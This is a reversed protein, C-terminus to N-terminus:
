KLHMLVFAADLMNVKDDQPQYQQDLDSLFRHLLDLFEQMTFSVSSSASPFPSASVSASPLSSAFSTPIPPTPSPSSAPPSTDILFLANATTEHIPGAGVVAIQAEYYQGGSVNANPLLQVGITASEHPSLTVTSQSITLSSVNPSVQPSLTFTTSLCDYDDNNTLTLTYERMTTALHSTHPPNVSIEPIVRCSTKPIFEVQVTAGATTHSVQSIKIGHFRDFYTKGDEIAGYSIDRIDSLANLLYTPQKFNNGEVIHVQVGDFYNTSGLRIFPVNGVYGIPRVDFGYPQRYGILYHYNTNPIPIILLKYDDESMFELPTVTYTGNQTVTAIQTSPIWNLVAKRAAHFHLLSSSNGMTDTIDGYERIICPNFGIPGVLYPVATSLIGKCDLNKAHVLGFIHGVEHIATGSHSTEPNWAVYTRFIGDPDRGAWGAIGNCDTAPVYYLRLMNPTLNIGQSQAYTDVAPGIAASNCYGTGGTHDLTYYGHIDGNFTLAGFSNEEYFNKLSYQGGFVMEDVEATTLPEIPNDSFNYLLVAVQQEGTTPFEIFGSADLQAQIEANGSLSLVENDLAVGSIDADLAGMNLSPEIDPFYVNYSIEPSNIDPILEIELDPETEQTYDIITARLKGQIHIPREILQEQKLEDDIQDLSTQQLVANAAERPHQKMEQLLKRKRTQALLKLEERKQNKLFFITRKHDENTRILRQTLEQPTASEFEAAKQRIDHTQYLAFLIIPLAIILTTFLLIKSIHAFAPSKM